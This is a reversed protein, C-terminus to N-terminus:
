RRGSAGNRFFRATHIVSERVPIFEIGTHERIKSNDFRVKSFAAKLVEGIQPERVGPLLTVVSVAFRLPYSVARPVYIFPKRVGMADAIMGFLEGASLNESSIIFREGTIRSNMLTTMCRVVDRVDVYGTVSGTYFPMGRELRSFFQASGRGAVGPGFIVSPNVIVADLGRSIGKWVEEESLHKSVAYASNRDNETWEHSEDTLGEDERAALSAVSSVHCLRAGGSSLCADVINATGTSNTHIMDESRSRDFSVEAACHYVKTIGEMAKSLSDRDLIDAKVWEIEKVLEAGDISYYSFIESLFDKKGESRYIARPKYGDSVLSYLLHSGVLGTGGTVLIKDNEMKM